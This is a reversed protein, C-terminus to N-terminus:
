GTVHSPTRLGVRVVLVPCNATRIVEDSVSGLFLRGARDLGRSGVVVLDAAEAEAAATIGSGPEGTWVLFEATAGADRARRVVALLLDEREARAQDVRDHRGAGALRHTELVNVVLLRARLQRALSIAQTTADESAPSLDTALLVTGTARHDGARVATDAMPTAVDTTSPM